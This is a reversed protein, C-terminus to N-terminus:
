KPQHSAPRQRLENIASGFPHTHFCIVCTELHQACVRQACNVRAAQSSSRSSAESGFLRAHLGNCMSSSSRSSQSAITIRPMPRSVIRFALPVTLRDHPRKFNDKTISRHRWGTLNSTQPWVSGSSLPQRAAEVANSFPARRRMSLGALTCKPM